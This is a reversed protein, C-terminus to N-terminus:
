LFHQIYKIVHTPITLDGVNENALSLNM